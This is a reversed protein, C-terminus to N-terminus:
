LADYLARALAKAKLDGLSLDENKGVCKEIADLLEEINTIKAM